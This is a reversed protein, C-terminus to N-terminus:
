EHGIVEVIDVDLCPNLSLGDDWDVDLVNIPPPVTGTVTGVNGGLVGRYEDDMYVLRVRDGVKFDRADMM